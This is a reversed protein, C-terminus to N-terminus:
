PQIQTDLKWTLSTELKYLNSMINIRYISETGPFVTWSLTTGLKPPIVTNQEGCFKWLKLLTAFMASKRPASDVLIILIWWFCEKKRIEHSPLVASSKSLEPSFHKKLNVVRMQFKVAYTKLPSFIYMLYQSNSLSRCFGKLGKLVPHKQSYKLLLIWM